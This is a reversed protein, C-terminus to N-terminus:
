GCVSSVGQKRRSFRRRPEEQPDGGPGGGAEALLGPQGPDWTGSSDVSGRRPSSASPFLFLPAPLLFLFAPHEAAQKGSFYTPRVLLHASSAVRLMGMPSFLVLPQCRCDHCLKIEFYEVITSTLRGGSDPLKLQEIRTHRKPGFVLWNCTDEKSPVGKQQKLPFGVPCGANKSPEGLANKQPIGNQLCM